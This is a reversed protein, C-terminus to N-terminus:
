PQGGRQITNAFMKLWNDGGPRNEPADSNLMQRLVDARGIQGNGGPPPTEEKDEEKRKRLEELDDENQAKNREVVRASSREFERMYTEMGANPTKMTRQNTLDKIEQRDEPDTIGKSDLLKETYTELQNLQQRSSLGEMSNKLAEMEARVGAVKKESMKEVSESIIESFLDATEDNFGKGKLISRVEDATPTEEEAAPEAEAKNQNQLNQLHQFKVLETLQGLAKQTAGLSESVDPQEKAAPAEEEAEPETEPETAPLDVPEGTELFQQMVDEPITDVDQGSEPATTTTEEAM